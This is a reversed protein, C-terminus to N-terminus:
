AAETESSSWDDYNEIFQEIKKSQTESVGMKKYIVRNIKEEIKTDQGQDQLLDAALKSLEEKEKQTFDPLRSM